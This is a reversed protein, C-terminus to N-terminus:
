DETTLDAQVFTTLPAPDGVEYFRLGADVAFPNSVCGQGFADTDYVADLDGSTRPCSRPWAFWFPSGSLRCLAREV